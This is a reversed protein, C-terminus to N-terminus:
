RGTLDVGGMRSGLAQLSQRAHERIDAREKMIAGFMGAAVTVVDDIRRRQTTRNRQANAEKSMPDAVYVHIGTDISLGNLQVAIKGDRYPGKRGWEVRGTAYVGLQTVCHGNEVLRASLQNAIRRRFFWEQDLLVALSRRPDDASVTGDPAGAAAHQLRIREREVFVRNCRNRALVGYIDDRIPESIRGGVTLSLGYSRVLLLTGLNDAEFDNEYTLDGNFNHFTRENIGQLANHVYNHWFNKLLYNTACDRMFASEDEFRARQLEVDTGSPRSLGAYSWELFAPTMELSVRLGDGAKRPHAFSFKGYFGNEAQDIETMLDAESTVYQKLESFIALRNLGHKAFREAITVDSERLWSVAIPKVKGANLVIAMRRLAQLICERYEPPATKQGMWSVMSKSATDEVREGMSRRQSGSRVGM